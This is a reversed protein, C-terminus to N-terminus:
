FSLYRPKRAKQVITKKRKRNPAQANVEAMAKPGAKFSQGSSPAYWGKGAMWNARVKDRLSAV